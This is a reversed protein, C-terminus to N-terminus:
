TMIFTYKFLLGRKRHTQRRLLGVRSTPPVRFFRAFWSGYTKKHEGLMGLPNIVTEYGYFIHDIARISRKWMVDCRGYQHELVFFRRSHKQVLSFGPFQVENEHLNERKHHLILM